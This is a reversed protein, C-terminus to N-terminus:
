VVVLRGGVRLDTGFRYLGAVLRVRWVTTGVFARGTRRTVGPGVFRFGRAASRDVVTIAYSGAAVRKASMSAGTAVLRATLAHPKAVPTPVPAPTAPVVAFSGNMTQFHPSCAYVWHGATLNIAFTMDGVFEVETSAPREGTEKKGLVFNHIDALDHVLLLYRGETLVDVHKGAADTLDITFGPGVTGILQPPDDSRGLPAALLVATAAISTFLLVSRM